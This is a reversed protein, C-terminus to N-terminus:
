PGLSSRGGKKSEVKNDQIRAQHPPVHAMAAALQAEEGHGTLKM